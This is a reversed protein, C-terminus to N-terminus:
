DRTGMAIAGSPMSGRTSARVSGRVLAGQTAITAHASAQDSESPNPNSRNTSSSTMSAPNLM